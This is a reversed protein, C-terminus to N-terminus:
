SSSSAGAGSKREDVGSTLDPAPASRADYPIGSDVIELVVRGPSADPSWRLEVEGPEDPYAHRVINVVAEEVVLQVERTRIASFGAEACRGAAFDLFATLSELVAPLRLSTV